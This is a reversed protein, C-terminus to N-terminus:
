NWALSLPIAARICIALLKTEAPDLPVMHSKSEGGSESQRVSVLCGKDRIGGPSAVKVYKQVKGQSSTKAGPDHMLEAEQSGGELVTLLKSMDTISFAVIIKNDWDYQNPGTASSIEMFLAGERSKIVREKPDSNDAGCGPCKDPPFAHSFMKQKCKICYYHPRQLNFQMAGFKGKVGKYFPLQLPNITTM